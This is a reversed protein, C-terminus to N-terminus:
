GRQTLVTAEYEAVNQIWEPGVPVNQEACFRHWVANFPLNKFEEMLALRNGLRGYDEEEALVATPELLAILLAKRL